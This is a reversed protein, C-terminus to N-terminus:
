MLRILNYQTGRTTASNAIKLMNNTALTITAPANQTQALQLSNPTGSIGHATILRVTSGYVDGTTITFSNCILLYVGCADLEINVEEAEELMGAYAYNRDQEYKYESGGLADGCLDINGGSTPPTYFNYPVGISTVFCGRYLYDGSPTRWSENAGNKGGFITITNSPNAVGDNKTRGIYTRSTNALSSAIGEPHISVSNTETESTSLKGSVNVNGNINTNSYNDTTINKAQKQLAEIEKGIVAKEINTGEVLNAGQAIYASTVVYYDGNYIIHEGKNYARTAQAHNEVEALNDDRSNAGNTVTFTSTTADNYTITYTDILGNTSTREIKTIGRGNKIIFTDSDEDNYSITYTDELGSTSTKTISTISKANTVTFTSTTADNYTITYTDELGSTATKEVDSIGKGNKVKFDATTGDNYTITYTDELGSTSTKEIGSIAGSEGKLLLTKFIIDKM